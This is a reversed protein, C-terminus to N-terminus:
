RTFTPLTPWGRSRSARAAYARQSAARPAMAMRLTGYSTSAARRFIMAPPRGCYRASRRAHPAQDTRRGQALVETEGPEQRDAGDAKGKRKRAGVPVADGPEEDRRDDDCCQAARRARREAPAPEEAGYEEQHEEAPKAVREPHVARDRPGERPHWDDREGRVAAEVNAPERPRHRQDAMPAGGPEGERGRGKQPHRPLPRPGVEQAPERPAGEAVRLIQPQRDDLDGLQASDVGHGENQHRHVCRGRTTEHQRPAPREGPRQAATGEQRRCEPEAGRPQSRRRERALDGHGDHLRRDLLGQLEIRGM